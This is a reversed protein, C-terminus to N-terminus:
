QSEEPAPAPEPAAPVDSGGTPPAGADPEGTPLAPAEAEQAQEVKKGEIEILVPAITAPVSSDAGGLLEPKVAPYDAPRRANLATYAADVWKSHRKQKKAADILKELHEIGKDEVSYFEPYFQEELIEM